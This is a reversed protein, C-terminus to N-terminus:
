STRTHKPHREGEEQHHHTHVAHKGDVEQPLDDPHRAGANEDVKRDQEKGDEEDAACNLANEQHAHLWIHIYEWIYLLNWNREFIQNLFKHNTQAM